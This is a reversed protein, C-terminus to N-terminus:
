LMSMDVSEYFQMNSAYTMQMMIVVILINLITTQELNSFLMHHNEPITTLQEPRM